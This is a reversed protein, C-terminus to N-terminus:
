YTLMFHFDSLWTWSKTVRHAISDMSNELGSHQLPNEEGPSRGLGPISGLSRVWTEWMAPLNEVLQAVLSAGLLCTTPTLYNHTSHISLGKQRWNIHRGDLKHEETYSLSKTIPQTSSFSFMKHLFLIQSCSIEPHQRQYPSLPEKELPPERHNPDWFGCCGELVKVLWCTAQGAADLPVTVCSFRQPGDWLSDEAKPPKQTDTWQPSSSLSQRPKWSGGSRKVRQCQALM